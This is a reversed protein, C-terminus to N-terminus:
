RPAPLVTRVFRDSRLYILALGVCPMWPEAEDSDGHDNIVRRKKGSGGAVSGPAELDAPQPAPLPVPATADAPNQTAKSPPALSAGPGYVIVNDFRTWKSKAQLKRLGNKGHTWYEGEHKYVDRDPRDAAQQKFFGVKEAGSPVSNGASEAGAAASTPNGSGADSM